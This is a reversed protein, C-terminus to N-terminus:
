VQMEQMPLCVRLWPVVLSTRLGDIKGELYIGFKEHREVDIAVM